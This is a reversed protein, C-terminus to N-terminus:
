LIFSAEQKTYKRVEGCRLSLTVVDIIYQFVEDTLWNKTNCDNKWILNQIMWIDRPAM